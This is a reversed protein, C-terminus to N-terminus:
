RVAECFESPPPPPPYKKRVVELHDSKEKADVVAEAAERIQRPTPPDAKPDLTQAFLPALSEIFRAYAEDKAANADVRPKSTQADAENYDRTCKAYAITPNNEFAVYGLMGVSLSLIIIVVGPFTISAGIRRLQRSLYRVMRTEQLRDLARQIIPLRSLVYGTLAGAIYAVSAPLWWEPLVLSSTM